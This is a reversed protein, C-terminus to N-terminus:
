GSPGPKSWHLCIKHFHGLLESLFQNLASFQGESVSVPKTCSPLVDNLFFFAPTSASGTEGRRRRIFELRVCTSPWKDSRRGM